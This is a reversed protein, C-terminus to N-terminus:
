KRFRDVKRQVAVITHVPYRLFIFVFNFDEVERIQKQVPPLVGYFVEKRLLLYRCNVIGKFFVDSM